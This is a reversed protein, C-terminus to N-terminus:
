IGRFQRCAKVYLALAVDATSRDLDCRSEIRLPFSIISVSFDHLDFMQAFEHEFLHLLKARAEAEDPLM